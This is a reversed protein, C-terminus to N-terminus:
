LDNMQKQINAEVTLYLPGTTCLNSAFMKNKKLTDYLM